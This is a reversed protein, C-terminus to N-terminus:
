QIDINGSASTHITMTRNKTNKLYVWGEETPLGNSRFAVSPPTNSFEVGDGSGKSTDFFVDRYDSLQKQLLIDEGADYVQNDNISDLSLFYDSANFTVVCNTNRKIASIKALQMNARLDQVASRLRYNPLWNSFTPIAITALIGLVAFTVIMEILSFGKETRGIWCPNRM